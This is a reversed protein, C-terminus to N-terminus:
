TQASGPADPHPGGSRVAVFRFGLTGLGTLAVVTYALNRGVWRDQFWAIFDASLQNAQGGIVRLERRYRRQGLPDSRFPDSAPADATFWLVAALTCGTALLLVSVRNIKRPSLPSFTASGGADSLSM